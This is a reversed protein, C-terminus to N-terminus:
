NPKLKYCLNDGNSKFICLCAYYDKNRDARLTLEINCREGEEDVGQIPFILDGNDKKRTELWKIINIHIEMKAYIDIKDKESNIIVLINLDTFESLKDGKSNFLATNFARYTYIKDQTYGNFSMFLLISLLLKM